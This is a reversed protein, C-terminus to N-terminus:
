NVKEKFCKNWFFAMLWGFIYGSVFTVVVLMLAKAFDFPMVTMPLSIMHLGLIFDLLVQAIGLAVLVSWFLHMLSILFGFTLGTKNKDIQMNM